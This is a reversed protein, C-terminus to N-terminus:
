LVLMLSPLSHGVSFGYLCQLVAERECHDLDVARRVIILTADNIGPELLREIFEDDHTANLRRVGTVFVDVSLVLLTSVGNLTDHANQVFLLEPEKLLDVLLEPERDKDNVGPNDLLGHGLELEDGLFAVARQVKTRNHIVEGFLHDGDSGVRAKRARCEHHCAGLWHDRVADQPSTIV